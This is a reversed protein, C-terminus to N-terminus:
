FLLKILANLSNAKYNQGFRTAIINGSFCRVVTYGNATLKKIANAKTM